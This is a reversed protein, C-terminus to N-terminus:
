EGGKFDSIKSFLEILEPGSMKDNESGDATFIGNAICAKYAYRKIDLIMYMFSGGLDLYRATMLSAMGKSLTDTEDYGQLVYLEKLSSSRGKASVSSGSQLKFMILADGYTATSKNDLESLFTVQTVDQSFAIGTSLLIAIFSINIIRITKM